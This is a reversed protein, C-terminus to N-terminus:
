ALRYEELADLDPAPGLGPGEPPRITGDAAIEVPAPLLWDRRHPFAFYALLLGTQITVLGVALRRERDQGM